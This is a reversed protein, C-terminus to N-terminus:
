VTSPSSSQTFSGGSQATSSPSVTLTLGLAHQSEKLERQALRTLQNLIWFEIKLKISYVTVQQLDDDAIL